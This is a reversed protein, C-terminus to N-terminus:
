RALANTRPTPTTSPGVGGPGLVREIVRRVDTFTFPKSLVDTAGEKVIREGEASELFGSAIVVPLDPELQRMRKMTEAGDLGPMVLDCVVVQPAPGQRVKAIAEDGSLVVDVEFGLSKLSQGLVRAVNEDDDIVLARGLSTATRAAAEPADATVKPLWFTFRTGKGVESELRIDGGHSRVCTYVMSLGLGTGGGRPKTTFFPEFARRKVEENMGTGTDQVRVTLRKDEAFTSVTLTGREGMADRANVCLNLIAQVIQSRDGLVPEQGTPVEVRLTISPPLLRACLSTAERVAELLDFREKREPEKRAFALLQNVLDRGRQAAILIQDLDAYADPDKVDERVARACSLVVSLVNNMDHSVGGALRGLAELKHSEHLAQLLAARESELRERETVDRLVVHVCDRGELHVNTSTAEVHRVQGDARMVSVRVQASDATPVLLLRVNDFTQDKWFLSEWPRGHLLRAELGMLRGLAQNADVVTRSAKDVVIVGDRSAEFLVRYRHREVSSDEQAREDISQQLEIRLRSIHREFQELSQLLGRRKPM